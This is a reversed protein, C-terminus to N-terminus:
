KGAATFDFLLSESVSKNEDAARNFVAIQGLLKKGAAFAADDAHGTDLKRSLELSWKGAAWRGKATVDAISGAPSKLVEFSPLREGAKDKPRPLPKYPGSGSDRLKKIFVTGVGKVAYEAADEIMRTSVQHTWDEAYGTPNTRAASWFWVDAIYSKASLMTRDYDGSLHFRLAFADDRRKGEVYKNGAWEWGKYETDAADDPWRVALYFRDGFVGARLEVNLTGTVNRDEPDLGFKEREGGAVAPAVKLASWGDKPWDALSGDLQPAAALRSVAVVQPPAQALAALPLALLLLATRTKV